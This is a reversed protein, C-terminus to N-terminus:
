YHLQGLEKTVAEKGHEKWVKLGRKLSLQTMIHHTVLTYDLDSQTVPPNVSDKDGITTATIEGHSKGLM